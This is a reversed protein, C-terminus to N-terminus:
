KYKVLLLAQEVETKKFRIKRPGVEYSKIIGRKVYERLTPLSVGLIKAVEERTLYVAEIVKQKQTESLIKELLQEIKELRQNIAEFPNEM